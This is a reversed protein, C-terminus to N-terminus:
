KLLRSYAQIAREGYEDWGGVSQVRRLAAQAMKDRLEPNHYLHLIKEHIAQSDRIPV